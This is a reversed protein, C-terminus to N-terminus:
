QKVEVIRKEVRADVKGAAKFGEVVIMQIPLEQRERVKPVLGLYKEAQSFLIYDNTTLAAISTRTVSITASGTNGAAPLVGVPGLSFLDTGLAGQLDMGERQRSNVTTAVAVAIQGLQNRVPDLLERRFDLLGGLSGGSGSRHQVM